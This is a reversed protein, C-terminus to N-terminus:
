VRTTANIVWDASPADRWVREARALADTEAQTENRAWTTLNKAGYKFHSVTVVFKVLSAPKPRPHNAPRAPQTM